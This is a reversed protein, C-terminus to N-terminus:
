KEAHDYVGDWDSGPPSSQFLRIRQLYIEALPDRSLAAYERFAREADLWAMSRYLELARKLRSLREVQGQQLKERDGLPEYIVVPERKGRVRIRDLERYVFGPALARTSESVIIDVAYFRTLGELRSALNVGDGVVTYNLRSMSGMNGAVVRATNVGIGSAISPLGQSLLEQNIDGMAASMDLATAVARVADDPNELPAGFVAMVADGIFKDIVGGQREILSSIHSFYINLLSLIESPRYQECLSTFQRIDSFLISVNKEEGGLEIRRALLQTAVAPSVVKGLLSRVREKERLGKVMDNFSHALAGIEDRLDTHIYQRYDGEAVKRAGRALEAIPRTVDRAVAISGLVSLTLGAGLLLTLQAQIRQYPQLAEALSRQLIVLLSANLANDLRTVLTVTEEDGLRGIFGHDTRWLSTRLLDPLARALKDPLTSAAKDWADGNRGIMVSVESEILGSLDKVFRDDLPFGILIWAAPDPILLPILIVEYPTRELLVTATAELEESNEAAALLEPWPFSARQLEPHKTDHMVDGNLSVIMMVDAGQLRGLHNQMASLLTGRDRAAYAAKFAFDASLLRAAEMYRESHWALQRRLVEKGTGELERSIAMRANERSTLYVAALVFSQVLLILGAFFTLLRLQFSRFRV